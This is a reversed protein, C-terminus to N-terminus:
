WTRILNYPDLDSLGFGGGVPEDHVVRVVVVEGEGDLAELQRRGAGAEASGEYLAGVGCVLRLKVLVGIQSRM